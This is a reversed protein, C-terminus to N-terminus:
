SVQNSLYAFRASRIEVTSLRNEVNEITKQLILDNGWIEISKRARTIATYLMKRGFLESGEPLVLVVKDFESGQSKHVSLCYAM